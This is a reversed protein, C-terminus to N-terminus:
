RAYGLKRAEDMIFDLSPYLATAVSRKQTVSSALALSRGQQASIVGLYYLEGRPGEVLLAGGSDGPLVNSELCWVALPGSTPSRDKGSRDVFCDARDRLTVNQYRRIGAEGCSRPTCNEAGFAVLVAHRGLRKELMDRLTTDPAPASSQQMASKSACAIDEPAPEDGAALKFLSPPLGVAIPEKTVVLAIDHAFRQNRNSGAVTNSASVESRWAPSVTVEAVDYTETKNGRTVVVTLEAAKAYDDIYVLGGSWRAKHQLCHAATVVIRPFLVTGSCVLRQEFQIEVVYPFRDEGDATGALALAPTVGILSLLLALILGRM